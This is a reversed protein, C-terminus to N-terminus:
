WVRKAELFEHWRLRQRSSGRDYLSGHPARASLLDGDHLHLRTSRTWRREKELGDRARTVVCIDSTSRPLAFRWRHFRRREGYQSKAQAVALVLSTLFHKPVHQLAVHCKAANIRLIVTANRRRLSSSRQDASSALRNIWAEGRLSM